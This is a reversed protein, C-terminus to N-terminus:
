RITIRQRVRAIPESRITSLVRVPATPLPPSPGIYGTNSLGMDDVWFPGINISNAAIGWRYVTFQTGTNQTAASTDTEDPTTADPSKFLKLEVQGVTASAVVFGEIRWWQNLPITATTSFITASNTDVFRLSGSTLLNVGAGLTAGNLVRWLTFNAGTNATFYYYGRFWIQTTTGMSTTWAVFASASTGTSSFNGSLIGHAAHATDSTVACGTGITVTDFATGSVGGSNGTTITTGSPAIGEFGNTLLTM